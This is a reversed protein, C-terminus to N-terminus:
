DKPLGLQMRAILNLQIEYTGAAMGAMMARRLQEDGISDRCLADTGMVELVVAAVVREAHVM